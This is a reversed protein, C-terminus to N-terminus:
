AITRLDLVERAKNVVIDVVQEVTLDTTNLTVADKAKKLPAHAREADRRDRREIDKRIEEVDARHGSQQLERFRRLSRAELSAEMFIKLQADPFVVSGIDRGEVVVSRGRVQGRLHENVWERVRPISAVGSVGATVEPSRIERTVDEDNLYVRLKGARSEQRIAINVLASELARADEPAIGQRLFYLTLARYIAGSDLYSFGLREAVLKAVTSKGSGAPGDIAIILEERM